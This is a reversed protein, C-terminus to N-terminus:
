SSPAMASMEAALRELYFRSVDSPLGAFSQVLKAVDKRGREYAALDRNGYVDRGAAYGNALDRFFVNVAVSLKDAPAATHLWFPPIYLIDGPRLIAEHPQCGNSMARALAARDFADFSSSSAGPEFGLRVVDAPPFLILRKTQRIQCLVNAMVDYHLWMRVPGSIRLPSSHANKNVHDLEPPLHFDECIEPYDKSLMTPEGSPAAASLARLYLLQGREISDLFDGFRQREYTFNKQQFDMNRATAAHVSVDRDIGIKSKLYQSSWKTVCDGIHSGRMIVPQRKAMILRFDAASTLQIDPISDLSDSTLRAMIPISQSALQAHKDQASQRVTQWQLPPQEVGEVELLVTDSWYTGFSFCTAGGGLSLNGHLSMGIFLPRPGVVTVPMWDKLNYVETHKTLMEPGGVGGVLYRTIAGNRDPWTAVQAGFRHLLAVNKHDLEDQRTFDIQCPSKLHWRWIDTLIVGDIGIGGFLLGSLGSTDDPVAVAGFRPPPTQSLSELVDWGKGARWLLMDSLLSGDGTKGAMVLVGSEGDLLVSIAIHRYRGQPLAEVENWVCDRRWWCQSLAESPSRRGGVLLCDGNPQLPSVTHCMLGSLVPPGEPKSASPEASVTVSDVQRDKTGLGGQVAFSHHENASPVIAAFRRQIKCAELPRCTITRLPFSEEAPRIEPRQSVTADSPAPKQAVLLFYHSAFLAFEEWEDFPEVADLSRREEPVIFQDDSWLQWLSRIDIGAAPWGANAFRQRMDSITGVAHLPTRLKEFHKLMTEAFPHDRGDPLHQELLCFTVDEYSSAWELVAQSGSHDMYAISVEAVFLIAVKCTEVNMQEKLIFSLFDLNRLDCGIAAYNDSRCFLGDKNITTNLNPLLDKLQPTTSIVSVKKQM